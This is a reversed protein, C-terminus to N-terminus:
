MIVCWKDDDEEEDDGEVMRRYREAEAKNKPGGEGNELMKSYAVAADEVGEDAAEQFLKRSSELDISGDVKGNKYMLGLLYKAQSNGVNIAKLYMEKAEELNVTGGIGEELMVGYVYYAEGCEANVADKMLARARILTSEEKSNMLLLGYNYKALPHGLNCAQEYCEKTADSKPNVRAYILAAFFLADADGKEGAKEYYELAEMTDADGGRGEELMKGYSEMAKVHGRDAAFKYYTRALVEDKNGGEGNELLYAYYYSGNLDGGRHAMEFCKRATVIDIDGGIGSYCMIGYKYCAFPNYLDCMNKYLDRALEENLFVPDNEYFNALAYKCQNDGLVSGSKWLSIAKEKNMEGGEGKNYMNGLCYFADPNEKQCSLEFYYRAKELDIGGGEGRFYMLALNFQAQDVGKEAARTFYMRALEYNQEELDGNYFLLGYELSADGNGLDSAALLLKKGEDVRNYTPSRIFLLGLEYMAEINKYEIAKTLFSIAEDKHSDTGYGYRILAHGYIYFSKPNNTDTAQKLCDFGKKLNDISNSNNVIQNNSSNKSSKNNSNNNTNQNIPSQSQNATSNPSSYKCLHLGYDILAEYYKLNAAKRINDWGGEKDIECGEGNIMMKGLNYLAEPNGQSACNIYELLSKNLDKEGGLGERLFYAYKLKCQLDKLDRGEKYLERAKVLDKEKIGKGEEYILGCYYFAHINNLKRAKEFNDFAIKCSEDNDEKYYLIGLNVLSDSDGLESAKQYFQKSRETDKRCGFGSEHMLGLYFLSRPHNNEAAKSFYQYALLADKKIIRGEYLLVGYNFQAESDGANAKEIIEKVELSGEDM